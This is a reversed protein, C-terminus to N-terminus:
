HPGGVGETHVVWGPLPGGVQNAAARIFGLNATMTIAKLDDGSGFIVQVSLVCCTM